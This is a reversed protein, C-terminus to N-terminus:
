KDVYKTEVVLNLVVPCFPTSVMRRQTPDIDPEDKNGQYQFYFANLLKKFSHGITTWEDM